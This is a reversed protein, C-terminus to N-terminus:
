KTKKKKITGKINKTHEKCIGPKWSCLGKIIEELYYEIEENLLDSSCEVQYVLEGKERSVTVAVLVNDKVL